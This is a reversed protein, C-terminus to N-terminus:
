DSAPASLRRELSDGALATKAVPRQIDNVDCIRHNWLVPDISQSQQNRGIDLIKRHVAGPKKFDTFDTANKNKGPECLSRRCASL